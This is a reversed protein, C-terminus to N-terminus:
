LTSAGTPPPPWLREARIEGQPRANYWDLEPIPGEAPAPTEEESAVGDAPIKSLRRAVHSQRGAPRPESKERWAARREKQVPQGDDWRQVPGMGHVPGVQSHSPRLLYDLEAFVPDDPGRSRELRDKAILAELKPPLLSPEDGDRGLLNAPGGSSKDRPRRNGGQDHPIDCPHRYGTQMRRDRWDYSNHTVAQYELRNAKLCSPHEEGHVDKFFSIGVNRLRRPDRGLGDVQMKAYVEGCSAGRRARPSCHPELRRAAPAARPTALGRAVADRPKEHQPEPPAAAGPEGEQPEGADPDPPRCPSLNSAHVRVTLPSGEIHVRRRGSELDEAAGNM